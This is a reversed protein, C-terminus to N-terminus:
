RIQGTEGDVAIIRVRGDPMLVKVLYVVRGGMNQTQVDLVRGGTAQRAFAIAQGQGIRAQALTIPAGTRELGIELARPELVGLCSLLLPLFTRVAKM